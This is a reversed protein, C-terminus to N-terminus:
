PSLLGQGLLNYSVAFACDTPEIDGSQFGSVFVAKGHRRFSRAKYHRLQKPNTHVHSWSSLRYLHGVRIRKGHSRIDVQKTIGSEIRSLTSETVGARKALEMTKCSVIRNHLEKM